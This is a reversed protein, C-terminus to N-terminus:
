PIDLLYRGASLPSKNSIFELTQPVSKLGFGPRDM